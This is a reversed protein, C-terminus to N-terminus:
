NIKRIHFIFGANSLAEELSTLVSMDKFEYPAFDVKSGVSTVYAKDGVINEWIDAMKILDKAAALVSRDLIEVSVIYKM